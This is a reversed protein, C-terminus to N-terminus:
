KSLEALKELSEIYIKIKKVEDLTLDSPTLIIAKADPRLQLEYRNMATGREPLKEEQVDENEINKVVKFAAPSKKNQMSVRSKKNWSAMKMPDTGYEEYENILREIRRQYIRFTDASYKTKNKNYVSQFIKDLREKLTSITEREEETLEPLILNLAVRYGTATNAAYVRNRQAVNIFEMLSDVVNM